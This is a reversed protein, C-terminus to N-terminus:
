DQWHAYEGTKTSKKFRKCFKACRKGQRGSYRGPPRGCTVSARKQVSTVRPRKRHHRTARTVSVRKQIQTDSALMEACRRWDSSADEDFRV